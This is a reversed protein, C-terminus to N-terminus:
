SINIVNNKTLFCNISVENNIPDEQWEGDVLFKYEYRGPELMVIKKWIGDSTAKMVHKKSNWKNFDGMLIVEQASPLELEFLIRRKSAKVGQEKKM